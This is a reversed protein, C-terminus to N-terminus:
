HHSGPRKSIRTSGLDPIHILNGSFSSLPPVPLRLATKESGGGEPDRECESLLQTSIKIRVNFVKMRFPIYLSTWLALLIFLFFTAM